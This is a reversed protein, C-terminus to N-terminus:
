IEVGPHFNLTRLVGLGTTVVCKDPCTKPTQFNKQALVRSTCEIKKQFSVRTIREQVGFKLQQGVMPKPQNIIRASSLRWGLLESGCEVMWPELLGCNTLVERFTGANLGATGVAIGLAIGAKLGCSCGRPCVRASGPGALVM